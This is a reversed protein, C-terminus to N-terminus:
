RPGCDNCDTGFACADFMSGPGGDDCQQDNAWDCTNSCGPMEAGDVSVVDAEMPFAARITVGRYQVSLSASAGYEVGSVLVRFHYIAGLDSAVDAFAQDLQAADAAEYFRGNSLTNLAEANIDSGLGVAYLKRTPAVFAFHSLVEAPTRLMQSATDAGDTFVVMVDQLLRLDSGDPEISALGGLADFLKTQSTSTASPYARYHQRIWSEASERPAYVGPAMSAGAETVRLPVVEESAFFTLFVLTDTPLSQVFKVADDRVAAESGSETISYSTDLLLHVLLGNSQELERLGEVGVERGNIVMEAGDEDLDVVHKEGDKLVFFVNAMTCRETASGECQEISYFSRYLDVCLGGDCFSEGSCGLVGSSAWLAALSLTINRM